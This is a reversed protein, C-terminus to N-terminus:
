LSLNRYIKGGKESTYYIEIKGKGKVIWEVFVGSNGNISDIRINEPNKEQWNVKDMVPDVVIGGSLVKISKGKIRVYDPSGINKSVAHMTRTPIARENEIFVRIKYIDRDLKKKEINGIKVLPLHYANFIVFSANRHCLEELQFSPPIRTTLKKWGGIEIEGLQPHNFKHWDSFGAGHLILDNWKMREEETVKGDKDFDQHEFYLENTFSIIGLARYSWDNFGGYVNYLDKWSIMYKYGPLIKEGEKGIYDYVKVDLFPYRGMNPAGPGRLIMGGSNHFDQTAAINKHSVLFQGIAYTESSYFPITSAGFQIYGPMWNFGYDRNMDYGGPPDENIEGDGDNDIGELGVFIYDGKEGEEPKARRLIRPDKKDKILNGMGEPVRKIMQLINGDGDIDEFGDEDVEGDKDNDYPMLNWRSTSPTNPHKMFYERGDPNVVPVVYFVVRNLLKTIKELKGYNSLLYDILYLTVETGQIENGHINADVYMAPKDEERGTEPNNITVAWIPNGKYSKGIIEVKVFKPYKSKFLNLAREIEKLNYYRNYKLLLGANMNFVFFLILVFFAFINKRM